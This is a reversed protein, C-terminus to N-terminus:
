EPLKVWDYLASAGTQDAYRLVAHDPALEIIGAARTLQECMKRESRSRDYIRILDTVVHSPGFRTGLLPADIGTAVLQIWPGWRRDHYVRWEGSWRKLATGFLSRGSRSGNHVPRAMFVGGSRLSWVVGPKSARAPAEEWSGILLRPDIEMAQEM